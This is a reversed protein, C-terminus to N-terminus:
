ADRALPCTMRHAGRGRGRALEGGPIAHVEVGARVLERNTAENREFAIVSGPALAVVANGDDWQRRGPQLEDNGTAVVTLTTLGLADRVEDLLSRESIEASVGGDGDPRYRIPVVKEVIQENAIALDRDGFTLVTDLQPTATARPMMAGIVLRAQGAAFLREALMTAARATTSQGHGVLVVGDGIAMVDGGEITAGGTDNDHGGFWVRLEHERFRPHFRYVAEVNLAEARRAPAHMASLVVGGYLWVSADRAFLQNPLPALV